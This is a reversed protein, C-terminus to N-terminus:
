RIFRCRSATALSSAPGSISVTPAPVAACPGLESLRDAAEQSGDVAVLVPGPLPDGQDGRVVLVACHAHRLVDRSVSGLIARKLRGFGRSGVVVLGAGLEEALNLIEVDPRGVRAHAGSVEGGEARIKRSQEELRERTERELTERAWSEFHADRPPWGYPTGSPPIGGGILAVHLESDLLKSLSTARRAARDSGPSGDAALLIKTPFM